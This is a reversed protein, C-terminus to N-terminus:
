IESDELADQIVINEVEELTNDLFSLMQVTNKDLIKKLYKEEKVFEYSLKIIEILDNKLGNRKEKINKKELETSGKRSRFCQILNRFQAREFRSLFHFFPNTQEFFSNILDAIFVKFNLFM